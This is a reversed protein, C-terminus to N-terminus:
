NEDRTVLIWLILLISLWTKEDRTVLILLILRNKQWVKETTDCQDHVFLKVLPNLSSM